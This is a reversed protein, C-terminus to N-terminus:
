KFLILFFVKQLYIRFFVKELRIQVYSKLGVSQGNFYESFSSWTWLNNKFLNFFRNYWVFIRSILIGKLARVFTFRFGIITAVINTQITIRLNFLNCVQFKCAIHIWKGWLRFHYWFKLKIFIKLLTSNKLPPSYISKKKYSFIYILM